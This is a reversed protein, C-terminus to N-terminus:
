EGSPRAPKATASRKMRLLAWGATQTAPAQAASGARSPAATRTVPPAVLGTRTQNARGATVRPKRKSGRPITARCRRRARSTGREGRDQGVRLRGPAAGAASRRDRRQDDAGHDEGAGQDLGVAGMAAAGGEVRQGAEEVAVRELLPEGLEVALGAVGALAERVGEQEAVEVVELADVVLEPVGGAVRDQLVDGVRHPRRQLGAVRDVPDAALLDEHDQGAGAALVRHLDGLPQPPRDALATGTPTGTESLM